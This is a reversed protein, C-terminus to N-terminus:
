ADVEAEAETTLSVETELSVDEIIESDASVTEKGIIMWGTREEFREVQKVNYRVGDYVFYMETTPEFTSPVDKADLIFRRQTTDFIGGYTFNKAAAIYALDYSFESHVNDPLVIMRQVFQRGHQVTKKGTERNVTSSVLWLINVPSGYRRKLRYLVKTIFRLRNM